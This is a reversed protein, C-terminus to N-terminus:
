KLKLKRWPSSPKGACAKSFTWVRHLFLLVRQLVHSRCTRGPKEHHEIGLTRQPVTEWRRFHQFGFNWRGVRHSGTSWHRPLAHLDHLHLHRRRQRSFSQFMTRKKQLHWTCVEQHQSETIILAALQVAHIQESMSEYDFVPTARCYRTRTSLSIMTGKTRASKRFKLWCWAKGRMGGGLHMSPVLPQLKLYSSDSHLLFLFM